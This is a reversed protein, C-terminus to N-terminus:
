IALRALGHWRGTPLDFQALKAHQPNFRPFARNLGGVQSPSRDGSDKMMAAGGFIKAVGGARERNPGGISGGAGARAKRPLGGGSFQIKSFIFDGIAGLALM